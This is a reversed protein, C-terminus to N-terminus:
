LGEGDEKTKGKDVFGYIQKYNQHGFAEQTTEPVMLSAYYLITSGHSESWQIRLLPRIIWWHQSSFIGIIGRRLPVM